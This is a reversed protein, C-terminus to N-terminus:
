NEKCFESNELEHSKLFIKEQSQHSQHFCPRISIEPHSLGLIGLEAANKSSRLSGDQLNTLLACFSGLRDEVLSPKQSKTTAHSQVDTPRMATLTM